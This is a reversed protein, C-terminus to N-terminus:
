PEGPTGSIDNDTNEELIEIIDRALDIYNIEPDIITVNLQNMLGYEFPPLIVVPNWTFPISTPGPLNTLRPSMDFISMTFSYDIVNNIRILNILSEFTLNTSLLLENLYHPSHTVLILLCRFGKCIIFSVMLYGSVVHRGANDIVCLQAIVEDPSLHYYGRIFQFMGNLDPSVHYNLFIRIFTSQGPIPIPMVGINDATALLAWAFGCLFTCTGYIVTSRVTNSNYVRICLNSSARGFERVQKFIVIYRM